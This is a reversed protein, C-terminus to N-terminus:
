ATRLSDNSGLADTGKGKPLTIESAVKPESYLYGQGYTCGLETLQKKVNESQIGEATVVLGMSKALAIMASVIATDDENSGYGLVFSKDIKFGSVPFKKLYSLSSYGTGFDDIHLNFGHRTIDKLITTANRVDGLLASETMEIIVMEPEIGHTRCSSLLHELLRTDNLQRFSLNVNMTSLKTGQKRQKVHWEGLQSFAQNVISNGIDIILGNDEAVSIFEEPSIVGLTPHIWRALAEFGFLDGTGLSYIPQYYVVIQNELIAKRLDSLSWGANKPAVKVVDDAYEIRNRGMEKAKYMAIDANKLLAQANDNEDSSFAIGISCSLYSESGLITIPKIAVKLIKSAIDYALDRHAPAPILVAFEDGGLRAVLGNVGVVKAIREAVERIVADGASHGMTDNIEKFRDLDIFFIALELEQEKAFKLADDLKEIFYTRNSLHTLTDHTALEQYREESESIEIISKERDAILKKNEFHGVLHAILVAVFMVVFSVLIANPIPDFGPVAIVAFLITALVTINVGLTLQNEGVVSPMKEPKGSKQIAVYLAILMAMIQMTRTVPLSKGGNLYFLLYAIDSSAMLIMSLAIPTCVKDFRRFLAIAIAFSILLVDISFYVINLVEDNINFRSDRIIYDAIYVIGIFSICAGFSVANITIRIIERKSLGILGISIFGSMAFIFVVIVAPDFTAASIYMDQRTFSLVGLIFQWPAWFASGIGILIWGISKSERYIRFSHISIGVYILAKLSEVIAVFVYGEKINNMDLIALCIANLLILSGFLSFYILPNRLAFLKANNGRLVSKFSM